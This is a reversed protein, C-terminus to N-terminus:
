GGGRPAHPAGLGGEQIHRTVDGGAAHGLPRRSRHPLGPEGRRIRPRDGPRRPPPRGDRRAGRRAGQLSPHLVDRLGREALRRGLRGRDGRQRVVPARDRPHGRQALARHGRRHGVRPRLLHREGVGHRRQRQQGPGPRAERLPLARRPERPLRPRRGHARRLGPLGHGPGPSLGLDPDPHWAVGTSPGGRLTSGGLVFLWPSIPVSQRWHTLRQGDALDTEEVLLGNSVVQYRAPATVVLDCTAKDHPHDITPLWNRAKDPWNDSFFTREGYANPGIVLGAAAVGGYRVVCAGASAEGGPLIWPSGCATTPTSTRRAPTGDESVGSVTM